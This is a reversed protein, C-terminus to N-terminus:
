LEGSDCSVRIEISINNIRLIDEFAWENHSYLIHLAYCIYRGELESDGLGEINWSLDRKVHISERFHKENETVPKDCFHMSLEIEPNLFNTIVHSLVAGENIEPYLILDFNHKGRSPDLAEIMKKAKAFGDEWAQLFGDSAKVLRNKNEETWKFKRNLRRSRERMIAKFLARDEESASFCCPASCLLTELEKMSLTELFKWQYQWGAAILDYFGVTGPKKKSDTAPLPPDERGITISPQKVYSLQRFSAPLKKVNFADITLTDINKLSGMSEPLATLVGSFVDIHKLASLSGFGSPLAKLAFTDLRLEELNKLHCFSEPLKTLKDSTLFFLKINKCDGISTPISRMEEASIFLERLSSLIGFNKPLLLDNGTDMTLKELAALKSFSAPIELAPARVILEKLSALQGFSDPLTLGIDSVLKLFKLNSLNGFTEPITKYSGYLVLLELPCNGLSDPIKGTHVANLFLRKLKQLAAIKKPLTKIDAAADDYIRLEELKELGFVWEPIEPIDYGLSLKQLNRLNGLQLPLIVTGEMKWEHYNGVSLKKLSTINGIFAPIETMNIDRIDLEVLTELEAIEPPIKALRLCSFDLKRGGKERCESIRRQAEAYIEGEELLFLDKQQRTM